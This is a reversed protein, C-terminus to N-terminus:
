GWLLNHYIYLLCFITMLIYPVSFQWRLIHPVSFQRWFILSCGDVSPPATRSGWLMNKNFYSVSFQWWFIPVSFQWWFILSIFNDDLHLLVATPLRSTLLFLRRWAVRLRILRCSVRSCVTRCVIFFVNISYRVVMQHFGNEFSCHFSPSSFHPRAIYCIPGPQEHIFGHLFLLVTIYPSRNYSTVRDLCSIFFFVSSATSSPPHLAATKVFHLGELAYGDVISYIHVFELKLIATIIVFSWIQSAYELM